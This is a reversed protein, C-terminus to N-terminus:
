TLSCCGSIQNNGRGCGGGGGALGGGDHIAGRILMRFESTKGDAMM